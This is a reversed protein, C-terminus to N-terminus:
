NLTTLLYRIREETFAYAPDTTYRVAYRSGDTMTLTFAETEEVARGTDASLPTLSLLPKGFAGNVVEVLEFTHTSATYRASVKDDAVTGGVWAPDLRLYYGDVDNVICDFLSRTTRKTHEWQMWTTLFLTNKLDTDAYGTLRRTRPWEPVGDGSVDSSVIHSRRSAERATRETQNTAADYFPALLQGNEWCVLETIAQDNDKYADAFVGNVTDTLTCVHTEGFQQISGDLLTQGLQDVTEGEFAILSATTQRKASDASFLLLEDRGSDTIDGVAIASYTATYRETLADGELSYVILQRDRSNNYVNWGTLLERTGDGQLDGFTVWAVETGQGVADGVSQWKGDTKRLLNVHTKEDIGDLCYFCVAEKIGDGDVDERLFASMATGTKPYKLVYRLTQGKTALWLELASVIAEQEKDALPPRLLNETNGTLVRCGTLNLLCFAAAIGAVLRRFGKM